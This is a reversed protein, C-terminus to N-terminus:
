SPVLHSPKSATCCARKALEFYPRLMSSGLGPFLGLVSNGGRKHRSRVAVKLATPCRAPTGGDGCGHVENGCSRRLRLCSWSPLAHRRQWRRSDFGPQKGHEVVVSWCLRWAATSRCGESGWGAAAGEWERSHPLISLLLAPSGTSTLAPPATPGHSPATVRSDITRAAVASALLHDPIESDVNYWPHDSDCQSWGRASDGGLWICVTFGYDNLM